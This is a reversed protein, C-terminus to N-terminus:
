WSVEVYWGIIRKAEAQYGLDDLYDAIADAIERSPATMSTRRLGASAAERIEAHVQRQCESLQRATASESLQRAQEADLAHLQRKSM